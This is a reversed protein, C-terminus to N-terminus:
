RRRAVEGNKQSDSVQHFSMPKLPSKRWHSSSNRIPSQDRNGKNIIAISRTGRNGVIDAVSVSSNDRRCNLPCANHLVNRRVEDGDESVVRLPKLM